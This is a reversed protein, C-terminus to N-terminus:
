LPCFSVISWNQGATLVKNPSILSGGCMLKGGVKIWAQWPIDGLSLPQQYWKSNSCLSYWRARTGGVIRSTLIPAHPCNDSINICNVASSFIIVITLRVVDRMTKVSTLKWQLTLNWILINKHFNGKNKRWYRKTLNAIQYESTPVFM